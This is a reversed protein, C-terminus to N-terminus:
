VTGSRRRVSVSPPPLIPNALLDAAVGGHFLAVWGGREAQVHHGLKLPSWEREHAYKPRPNQSLSVPM